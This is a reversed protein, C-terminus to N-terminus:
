PGQASKDASNAPAGGHDDGRIVGTQDVFFSRRGTKGYSIPTATAEFQNGSASLQINYGYKDLMEKQVLKAEVLKDLSGYSGNGQTAQYTAEASSIMRLISEAIAENMEPSGAKMASMAATTGAVMAIILNKPLHLEHLAGLGENSLTYTIADATPSLQLLFDRMKPDLSASPKRIEEQYGEMLAPSVYIEGLSQRPQWRRSTRFSNNSALTQHNLNADIVRRVTAAESIIVFNGVFAYAFVGGYNVLEFDDHRETQAILNAEGIGLGDLVRPMLKRAADRDRVAILLVPFANSVKQKEDQTGNSSTKPSSRPSGPIGFVGAGALTSLSGAIAIENGLAPLLDEKIKFGAKKEFAAFPNLLERKEGAAIQQPVSKLAIEAQKQMGDYTRTFDVSMTVFVETDDPLVSPADSAYAPGSLLQPVFPLPLPKADPPGILISRIVYSDNDLTLAAGVAEPWQPEGRTLLDMMQVLQSYAAMQAQQAQTPKPAPSPQAVVLTATVQEDPRAPLMEPSRPEGPSPQAMETEVTAEEEKRIREAEAESITQKPSPRPKAREELAVNFYIFLSESPFRDRAIRFNQDEALPKSGAPHLKAFKFPKDSIFVLNGAHTIVFPLHEAPPQQQTSPPVVEAKLKPQGVTQPQAPEGPKIQVADPSPKEEPTADPVP